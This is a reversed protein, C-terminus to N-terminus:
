GASAFAACRALWRDREAKDGSTSYHMAVFSGGPKLRAHIELLTRHREAEATFHLTLLCSAADFPGARAAEVYGQHLRVRPALPGLTTKALDLMEASPDVGDFQWGPYSQAFLKLEM